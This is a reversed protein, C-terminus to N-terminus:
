SPVKKIEGLQEDTLGTGDIDEGVEQPIFFNYM